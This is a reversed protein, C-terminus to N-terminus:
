LGPIRKGLIVSFLKIFINVKFNLILSRIIQISSIKAANSGSFMIKIFKCWAIHTNTIKDGKYKNPRALFLNREALETIM